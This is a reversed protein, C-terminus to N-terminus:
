TMKAGCKPCFRDSKQVPKGCRPCFGAAKERRERRRTALIVELADDPAAVAVAHKRGNGNGGVAAGALTADARRAAIVAELRDEASARGTEPEMEDLRRLVEAGHQLLIQRQVPYDEEPIKGLAYDFDLEQIANVLREREALLASREHDASAEPKILSEEAASGKEMFPRAVFLAVLLLLALILLISGLDM